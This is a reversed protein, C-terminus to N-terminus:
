TIVRFRKHSIYGCPKGRFRYINHTKYIGSNIKLHKTTKFIGLYICYYCYLCFSLRVTVLFMLKHFLYLDDSLCWGALLPFFCMIYHHKRYIYKKMVYIIEINYTRILLLCYARQMKQAGFQVNVTIPEQSSM